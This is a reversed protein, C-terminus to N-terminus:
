KLRIDMRRNASRGAETANDSKPQTDGLGTASLNAAPVGQSVLYAQVAQARKESLALNLAAAGVNDTHGEITAAKVKLCAVMANLALKGAPSVTTSGTNFGVEAALTAACPDPAAVVAPATVAAAPVGVAPQTVVPAASAVTADAACCHARNPGYGLWWLVALLMALVIAVIRSWVIFSPSHKRPEASHLSTM